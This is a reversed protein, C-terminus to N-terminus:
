PVLVKKKKKRSKRKITGKEQGKLAYKLERYRRIEEGNEEGGM